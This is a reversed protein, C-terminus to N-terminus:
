ELKLRCPLFIVIFLVYITPLFMLTFCAPHTINNFNLTTFDATTFTYSTKNLHRLSEGAQGESFLLMLM